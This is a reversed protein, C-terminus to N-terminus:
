LSFLIFQLGVQALNKLLDCFEEDLYDMANAETDGVAKVSDCKKIQEFFTGIKEVSKSFTNFYTTFENDGVENNKIMKVRNLDQVIVNKIENFSTFLELSLKSTFKGFSENSAGILERHPMMSMNGNYTQSAGSTSSSSSSSPPPPPPPMMMTKDIDTNSNFRKLQKLEKKKSPDIPPKPETLSKDIEDLQAYIEEFEELKIPIDDNVSESVPSSEVNESHFNDYLLSPDLEVINNSLTELISELNQTINHTITELDGPSIDEIM